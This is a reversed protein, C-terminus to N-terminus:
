QLNTEKYFPSALSRKLQGFVILPGTPLNLFENETMKVQKVSFFPCGPATTGVSLPAEETAECPPYPPEPSTTQEM